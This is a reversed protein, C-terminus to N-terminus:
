TGGKFPPTIGMRVASFLLTHSCTNCSIAIYPYVPPAGAAEPTSWRPTQVVHASTTWHKTKCVPCVVDGKWHQDWWAKIKQFDDQSLKGASDPMEGGRELSPYQSFIACCDHHEGLPQPPYAGSCAWFSERRIGAFKVVDLAPVLSKVVDRSVNM